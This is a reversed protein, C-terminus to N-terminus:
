IKINLELLEKRLQRENSFQIGKFGL